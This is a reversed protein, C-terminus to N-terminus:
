AYDRLWTVSLSAATFNLTQATVSSFIDLTLNPTVIDSAATTGYYLCYSGNLFVASGDGVEQDSCNNTAVTAGITDAAALSSLEITFTTLYVGLRPLRILFPNAALDVMDATDVDVADFAISASYNAAAPIVVALPATMRVKAMILSDITRDVILDLADLQDEVQDAFECFTDGIDCPRDSCLAYTLGYIPTCTTM